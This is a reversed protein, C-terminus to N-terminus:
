ILDIAKFMGHSFSKLPRDFAGKRMSPEQWQAMFAQCSSITLEVPQGIEKPATKTVVPNKRVEKIMAM